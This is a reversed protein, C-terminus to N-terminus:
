PSDQAKANQSSTSYHSSRSRLIQKNYGDDDDSAKKAPRFLISMISIDLSYFAIDNIGNSHLTM